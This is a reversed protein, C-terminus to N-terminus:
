DLLLPLLVEPRDEEDRGGVAPSTGGVDVEDM